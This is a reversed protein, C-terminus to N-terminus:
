GEDDPTAAADSCTEASVPWSTPGLPLESSSAAAVRAELDALGVQPRSLVMLSSEVLSQCPLRWHDPRKKLRAQEVATEPSLAQSGHSGVVAVFCTVCQGCGGCNGLQGKLGYLQVGARLAVERLNEGPYCETDFGERVFRVVPM